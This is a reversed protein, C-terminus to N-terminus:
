FRLFNVPRFHRAACFLRRIVSVVIYIKEKAKVRIKKRDSLAVEFYTVGHFDLDSKKLVGHHHQIVNKITVNQEIFAVKAKVKALRDAMSKSTSLAKFVIERKQKAPLFTFSEYLSKALLDNTQNPDHEKLDIPIQTRPLAWTNTGDLVTLVMHFYIDALFDFWYQILEGHFLEIVRNPHDM